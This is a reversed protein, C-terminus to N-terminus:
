GRRRVLEHLGDLLDPDPAEDVHNNNWLGSGQVRPRPCRRGLWSPSPPDLPTRAFSSLLAIANREVYGRLSGPGAADDIALCLFPMSGIYDSVRTELPHEAMRVERAASLGRGWTPSAPSADAALLAAGVLLRFISGRHNGGGSRLTGRHQSLRNWLRTRSGAALAHTGVRVVRPGSGSDSRREGPEFFFYVGRQPWAMRGDCHSLKRTGGQCQELEALVDYFRKLRIIRDDMNTGGTFSAPSRL